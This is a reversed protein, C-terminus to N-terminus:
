KSVNVVRQGVTSASAAASPHRRHHGGPRPEAIVGAGAIQEGAGAVTAPSCPPRKGSSSASSRCAGPCRRRYRRRSRRSRRRCARPPPRRCHRAPSRAATRTLSGDAPLCPRFGPAPRRSRGRVLAGAIEGLRHHVEARRDARRAVGIAAAARKAGHARGIASPSGSASDPRLRRLRGRGRRSPM